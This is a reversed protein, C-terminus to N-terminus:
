QTVPRQWDTCFANACIRCQFLYYGYANSQFTYTATNNNSNQIFPTPFPSPDIDQPNNKKILRFDYTVPNLYSANKECTFNVTQGLSPNASSTSLSECSLVGTPTPTITLTPTLTPTPTLSPGCSMGCYPPNTNPNSFDFITFGTKINPNGVAADIQGPGCYNTGGFDGYCKTVSFSESTITGNIPGAQNQDCGQPGTPWGNPCSYRTFSYPYGVCGTASITVCQGCQGGGSITISSATCTSPSGTPVPGNDSYNGGDCGQENPDTCTPDTAPNCRCKTCCKYWVKKCDGVPPQQIQDCMKLGSACSPMGCSQAFSSKQSFFLFIFSFFTLYLILKIKNNM